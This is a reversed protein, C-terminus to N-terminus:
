DIRKCATRFDRAVLFRDLLLVFVPLLGIGVLQPYGGWAMAEGTGASPALFGALVASRWGLGWGYLLLYAGIAPAAAAAFAMAQISGYTGLVRELGVMVVPVLPPYALSSSRIHEGFIAHGFALWNGGDLGTPYPTYQLLRWRIFAVAAIVGVFVVHSAIASARLPSVAPTAKTLEVDRVSDTDRPARRESAQETVTRGEKAETTTRATTGICGYCSM